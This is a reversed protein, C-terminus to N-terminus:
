LHECWPTDLPDSALVLVCLDLVTDETFEGLLLGVPLVQDDCSAIVRKDHQIVIRVVWAVRHHDRVCMSTLIRRKFVLDEEIMGAQFLSGKIRELSCELWVAEIGAQVESVPSTARDIVMQVSM